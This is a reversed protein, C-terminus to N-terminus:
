KSAVNVVLSIQGAYKQLSTMEGEGDMVSLRYISNPPLFTAPSLDRGAYDERSSRLGARGRYKNHKTKVIAVLFMFSLVGMFLLAITTQRREDLRQKGDKEGPDLGGSDAAEASPSALPKNSRRQMKKAVVCSM